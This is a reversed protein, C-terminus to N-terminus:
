QIAEKVGDTLEAMIEDRMDQMATRLFSHAPYDVNRTHAQVLVKRPQKMPKGFAYRMMRMHSKVSQAGTFGYEHYAAYEVNTGVRGIITDGDQTVEQHISGRLNNSRVHLVQGSLKDRVVRAQLRVTIRGISGAIKRDIGAAARDFHAQVNEAGVVVATISM